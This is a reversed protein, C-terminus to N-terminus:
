YDDSCAPTNKTPNRRPIIHHYLAFRSSGIARLMADRLSKRYDLEETDATEFMLGGLRIVQMLGGGHLEITHDDIHRLYPLRSGASQERAFDAPVPTSRAKMRPLFQM